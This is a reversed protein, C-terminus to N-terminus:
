FESASIRKQTLNGSAQLILEVTWQEGWENLPFDSNPKSYITDPGFKHELGYWSTGNATKLRYNGYPLNFTYSGGARIFAMTVQRDLADVVKVLTHGGATSTKIIIATSTSSTSVDFEGTRPLPLPNLSPAIPAPQTASPRNTQQPRAAETTAQELGRNPSKTTLSEQYMSWALLGIFGLPLWWHLGLSRTSGGDKSTSRSGGTPRGYHGAPLQFDAEFQKAFPTSQLGTRQRMRAIHEVAHHVRDYQKRRGLHTLIKGAEAIGPILKAQPGTVADKISEATATRDRNIRRYLDKM